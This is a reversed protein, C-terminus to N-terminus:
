PSCEVGGGYGANVYQPMLLRLIRDPYGRNERINAPARRKDPTIAVNDFWLSDICPVCHDLDVGTTARCVAQDRQLWGEGGNYASLKAALWDCQTSWPRPVLDHMYRVQASIAWRWSMPDAPYLQPYRRALDEATAPMFQTLGHAGVPSTAGPRCGSEQQIQAALVAIPANPGFVSTAESTLHRQYQRCSEPVAAYAPEPACSAVLVVIAWLLVGWALANVIGRPADLDDSTLRERM